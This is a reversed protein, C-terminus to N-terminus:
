GQGTRSAERAEWGWQDAEPPWPADSPGIRVGYPVNLMLCTRFPSFITMYEDDTTIALFDIRYGSLFKVCIDLGSIFDISSLVGLEITEIGTNVDTLYDDNNGGGFLMRNEHFLRWARSHTRMDWEPYMKMLGRMSRRQIMKGFGISLSNWEGIRKQCCSQGILGATFNNLRNITTADM